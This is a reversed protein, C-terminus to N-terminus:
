RDCEMCTRTSELECMESRRGNCTDKVEIGEGEGEMERETVTHVLAM